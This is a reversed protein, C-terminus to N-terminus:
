TEGRVVLPTVPFHGFGMDLTPRSLPKFSADGKIPIDRSVLAIRASHVAVKMYWSKIKPKPHAQLHKSPPFSHRPPEYHKADKNGNTIKYAYMACFM